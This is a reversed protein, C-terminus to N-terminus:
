GDLDDLQWLLVEGLDDPYRDVERDMFALNEVQVCEHSKIGDLIDLFEVRDTEFILRDGRYIAFWGSNDEVYTLRLKNM